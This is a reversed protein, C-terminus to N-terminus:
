QLEKFRERSEENSRMELKQMIELVKDPNNMECKIEQKLHDWLLRFKDPKQCPSDYDFIRSKWYQCGDKPM